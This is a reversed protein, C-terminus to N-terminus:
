WCTSAAWGRGRRASRGPWRPEERVDMELGGAAGPLEAAVASARAASRGTLAVREGAAALASAMALGLGSTGDTVLVKLTSASM